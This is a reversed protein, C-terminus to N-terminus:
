INRLKNLHLIIETKLETETRQMITLKVLYLISGYVEYMRM